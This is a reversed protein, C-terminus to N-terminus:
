ELSMPPSLFFDWVVTWYVPYYLAVDPCCTFISEVSPLFTEVVYRYTLYLAGGGGTLYRGIWGGVSRGCVLRSRGM